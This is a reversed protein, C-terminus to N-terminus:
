SQNMIIKSLSGYIDVMLVKYLVLLILKFSPSSTSNERLSFVWVLRFLGDAYPLVGDQFSLMMEVPMQIWSREIACSCHLQVTNLVICLVLLDM